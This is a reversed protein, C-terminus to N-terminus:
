EEGIVLEPKLDDGSIEYDGEKDAESSDTDCDQDITGNAGM